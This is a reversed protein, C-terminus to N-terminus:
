GDLAPLPLLENLRDIFDPYGFGSDLIIPQRRRGPPIGGNRAPAVLRQTTMM